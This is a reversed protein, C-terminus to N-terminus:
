AEVDRRLRAFHKLNGRRLREFAIRVERKNNDFSVGDPMTLDKVIPQQEEFQKLLYEVSDEAKDIIANMTDNFDEYDM